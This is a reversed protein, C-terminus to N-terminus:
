IFEPLVFRGPDEPHQVVWVPQTNEHRRKLAAIHRDDRETHVLTNRDPLQLTVYARNRRRGITEETVKKIQARRAVGDRLFAAIKPQTRRQRIMSRLALFVVPVGLLRFAWPFRSQSAGEICAIRPDDPLYRVTVPSGVGGSLHRAYCVGSRSEGERTKFSFEYRELGAKARSRSSRRDDANGAHFHWGTREVLTIQGQVLPSNEDLKFDDPATPPFWLSLVLLLGTALFFGVLRFPSPDEFQDRIRQKLGAPLSGRPPPESLFADMEDAPVPSM